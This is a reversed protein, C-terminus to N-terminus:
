MEAAPLLLCVIAWRGAEEALCMSASMHQKQATNQVISLSCLAQGQLTVGMSAYVALAITSCCVQLGDAAQVRNSSM